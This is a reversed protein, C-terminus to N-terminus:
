QATPQEPFQFQEPQEQYEEASAAAQSQDQSVCKIMTQAFQHEIRVKWAKKVPFSTLRVGGLPEWGASIFRKVQLILAEQETEMVVTYDTVKSSDSPMLGMLRYFLRIESFFNRQIRGFFSLFRM